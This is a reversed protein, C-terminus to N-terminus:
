AKTVVRKMGMAILKDLSKAFEQRDRMGFAAPGGTNLGAERMGQMFDRVSMREGISAETHIEGRPDLAVGGKAIVQAALPIDGTVVVDGPEVLSAIADDAVDFGKGVVQYTLLPHKPLRTVKNAVFHAPIPVRLAARVIIEKIVEPVADADIWLKM